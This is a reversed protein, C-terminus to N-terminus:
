RMARDQREVLVAALVILLAWVGFLYLFASPIGSIEGAPLAVIPFNFLPLGLLALAALRLRLGNGQRM